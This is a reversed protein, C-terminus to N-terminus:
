RELMAVFTGTYSVCLLNNQYIQANLKIRGKKKAELINLFKIWQEPLPFDCVAQFDSDIPLHYHIHSEAIVIHVGRDELGQLNIHVLSWCALTALNHLSGGFATKQHNINVSLPSTLIIQKSSALAVKIEMAKSLPIHSHLYNELLSEKSLNLNGM